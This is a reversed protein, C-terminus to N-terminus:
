GQPLAVRNHLLIFCLVIVIIALVIALFTAGYKLLKVRRVVRNTEEKAAERLRAFETELSAEIVEEDRLEITWWGDSPPSWAEPLKKMEAPSAPHLGSHCWFPATERTWIRVLGYNTALAQMREWLQHRLADALAFDSFAESHLRGHRGSIEMGLTGVLEGEATEALQFETLRRELEAVPLRMAEWMAVLGTLDDVTARRVRYESHSMRVEM